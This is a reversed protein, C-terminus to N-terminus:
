GHHLAVALAALRHRDRDTLQSHTPLTILQRALLEAGCLAPDPTSLLPRLAPLAWLTTPYGPAAGLRALESDRLTTNGDPIRVPYRLAGSRSDLRIGCVLTNADEIGGLADTYLRSSNRRCLVERRAAEDSALLLAASTRTMPQLAGPEHFITEGLALYPISSPLGYLSPRGFLWQTGATAVTKVEASIRHNAAPLHTTPFAGVAHDGRGLLAGGGAGTWGKGRGFSLV